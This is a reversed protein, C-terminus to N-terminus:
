VKKYKRRSLHIIYFLENAAILMLTFMSLTLFIGVKLVIWCLCVIPMLIYRALLRLSEHKSIIDAMPPSIKYYITIITRGFVSHSLARDRFDRLILVNVDKKTGFAATAIFCGGGGSSEASQNPTPNPLPPNPNVGGYEYAGIDPAAGAYSLQSWGGISANPDNVLIGADICPSDAQLHWWNAISTNTSTFKPDSSSLNAMSGHGSNVGTVANFDGYSSGGAWTSYVIARDYGLNYAGNQYPRIISNKIFNGNWDNSVLTALSHGADTPYNYHLMWVVYYPQGVYGSTRVYGQGVKDAINNYFRNNSVASPNRNGVISVWAANDNDRSSSPINYFTNNYFWNNTASAFSGYTDLEVGRNMIDFVVNRRFSNYSSGSLQFANKSGCGSNGIPCASGSLSIKNGDILNYSATSNLISIGHGHQHTITNNLIQNYRTNLCQNEYGGLLIAGHNGDGIANYQIINYQGGCIYISDANNALDQSGYSINDLTCNQVTNHHGTIYIAPGSVNDRIRIGDVINYSGSLRIIDVYGTHPYTIGPTRNAGKKITIANGATCTKNFIWYGDYLTDFHLEIIDGCASNNYVTQVDTGTCGSPCVTRTAGFVPSNFLLIALILILSSLKNM